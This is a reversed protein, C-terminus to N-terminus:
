NDSTIAPSGMPSVSDLPVTHLAPRGKAAEDDGKPNSEKNNRAQLISHVWEAVEPDETGPAGLDLKSVASTVENSSSDTTTEAAEEDVETITEPKSLSSLWPHKLLMAYTPRM